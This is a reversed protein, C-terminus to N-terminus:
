AISGNSLNMQHRGVIALFLVNLGKSGPQFNLV